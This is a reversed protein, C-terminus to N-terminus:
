TRSTMLKVAPFLGYLILSLAYAVGAVSARAALAEQLTVGRIGLVVTFELIVLLTFAAAGVALATKLDPIGFRDVVFGASIYSITVMVPLELLEATQPGVAPELMLVRITGLVFGAAFVIGFYCLTSQLVKRASM